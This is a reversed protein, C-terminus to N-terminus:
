QSRKRLFTIRRKIRHLRGEITRLIGKRPWAIIRRRTWSSRRRHPSWSIILPITGAIAHSGLRGQPSGRSATTAVHPLSANAEILFPMLVFFKSIFYIKKVKEQPPPSQHLRKPLSQFFKTPIKGKSLLPWTSLIQNKKYAKFTPVFNREPNPKQQDPPMHMTAHRNHEGWVNCQFSLSLSDSALKRIDILCISHM